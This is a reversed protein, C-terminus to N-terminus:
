KNLTKKVGNKVGKILSSFWDKGYTKKFNELEPLSEEREKKLQEQVVEYFVDFTREYDFREGWNEGKRLVYGAVNYRGDKLFNKRGADRSIAVVFEGLSSKHTKLFDVLDKQHPLMYKVYDEKTGEFFIKYSMPSNDGEVEEIRDLTAIDWMYPDKLVVAEANKRAKEFSDIEQNKM